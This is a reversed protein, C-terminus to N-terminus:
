DGGGGGEATRHNDHNMFTRALIMSEGEWMRRKQRSRVIQIVAFRAGM